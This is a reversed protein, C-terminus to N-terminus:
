VSGFVISLAIQVQTDYDIGKWHRKSILGQCGCIAVACLSRRTFRESLELEFESAPRPASGSHTRATIDRANGGRDIHHWHTPFAVQASLPALIRALYLTWTKKSGAVAHIFRPRSTSKSMRVQFRSRNASSNGSSYGVKTIEFLSNTPVRFISLHCPTYCFFNTTTRARSWLDRNIIINRSSEYMSIAGEPM